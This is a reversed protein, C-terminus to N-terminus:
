AREEPHVGRERLERRLEGAAQRLRARATPVSCALAEALEAMTLGGLHRLALATSLEPELAAMADSVHEHEEAQSALDATSTPSMADGSEIEACARVKNRRCQDIVVHRAIGLTYSTARKPSVKGLQGHLRVFTEQVCDEVQQHDLGVRLGSLFRYVRPALEDYLTAFTALDAPLQQDPPEKVHEQVSTM